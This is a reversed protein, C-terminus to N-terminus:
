PLEGSANSLTIDSDGFKMNRVDHLVSRAIVGDMKEVLDDVACLVSFWAAMALLIHEDQISPFRLMVGELEKV